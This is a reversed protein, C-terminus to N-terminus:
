CRMRSIRLQKLFSLNVTLHNVSSYFDKNTYKDSFKYLPPISESSNQFIKKFLKNIKNEDLAPKYSQDSNRFTSTSFSKHLNVINSKSKKETETIEESLFGSFGLVLGILFNFFLRTFTKNSM